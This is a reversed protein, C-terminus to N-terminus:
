KFNYFEVAFPLRKGHLFNRGSYLTKVPENVEKIYPVINDPLNIGTRGIFYEQLIKDSL